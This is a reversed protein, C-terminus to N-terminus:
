TVPQSKRRARLILVLLAPPRHFVTVLQHETHFGATIYVYGQGLSDCIVVIVSVFNDKSAPVVALSCFLRVLGLYRNLNFFNALSGSWLFVFCYVASCVSLM